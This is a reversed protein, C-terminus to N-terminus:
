IRKNKRRIEKEKRQKQMMRERMEEIKKSRCKISSLKSSIRLPRLIEWRLAGIL